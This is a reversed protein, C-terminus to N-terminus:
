KTLQELYAKKGIGDIYHYLGFVINRIVLDRGEDNMELLQKSTYFNCGGLQDLQDIQDKYKDLVVKCEIEGCKVLPNYPRFGGIEYHVRDVTLTTIVPIDAIDIVGIAAQTESCHIFMGLMGGDAKSEPSVIIIARTTM